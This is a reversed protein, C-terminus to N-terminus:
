SALLTDCENGIYSALSLIFFVTQRQKLTIKSFELFIIIIFLNYM